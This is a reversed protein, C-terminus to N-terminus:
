TSGIPLHADGLGSLSLLRDWCFLASDGASFSPSRGGGAGVQTSVHPSMRRRSQLGQAIALACRRLKVWM